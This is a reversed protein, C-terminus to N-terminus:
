RHCLYPSFKSNGLVPLEFYHIKVSRTHIHRGFLELYTDRTVPVLFTFAREPDILHLDLAEAREVARQLVLLLTRQLLLVEVHVLVQLREVDSEQGLLSGLLVDGATLEEFLGLKDVDVREQHLFLLFAGLARVRLASAAATLGATVVGLATARVVAARLGAVVGLGTVVGAAVVLATAAVTRDRRAFSVLYDSPAEAGAPSGGSYYLRRNLLLLALSAQAIGLPLLSSRLEVGLFVM